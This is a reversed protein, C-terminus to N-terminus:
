LLQAWDPTQSESITGNVSNRYECTNYASFCNLENNEKMREKRSNFAAARLEDLM